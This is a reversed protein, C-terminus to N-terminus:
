IKSILKLYMDNSKEWSFKKSFIEGNQIVSKNQNQDIAKEINLSLSNISFSKAIFRSNEPIWSLGEIDYTVLPVKHSIAELASISFTEFRSPIVMCLSEKILIDKNKGTIKGKLIVENELGKKYILDKLINFQKEEGSGAIVLKINNRKSIKKFSSVLLDLGKQNVEIRGLFLIQKKKQSNKIKQITVGNPIVSILAKKNVKGIQEKVRESTVIFEKYTKLGEKEFFDFPIKYKRKMDEGSLMHVLGIVRKSTFLQLLGTSFPPTFSEFWVDFNTNIVYFPLIFQFVLQGFKPGGFSVGVRKYFVGDNKKNSSGPYKGTIVTISHKEALRKAIEHIAYAGGGGYYPNKLDDYNSIIIKKTM